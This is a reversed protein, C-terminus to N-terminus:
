TLTLEISFIAAVANTAAGDTTIRLTQGATFANNTLGTNSVTSGPASGSTNFTLTGMSTGGNNAVTLVTNAGTVAAQVTGYVATVNCAYPIPIYSTGVTGIDDM